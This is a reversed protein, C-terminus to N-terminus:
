RKSSSKAFLAFYDFDYGDYQTVNQFFINSKQRANKLNLNSLM